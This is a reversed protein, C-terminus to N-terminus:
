VVSKRDQDLDLDAWPRTDFHAGLLLRAKGEVPGFRGIINRSPVLRGELKMNFPQTTITAGAEELKGKIYLICKAHAESGPPRPGLECQAMLDAWARESNFRDPSTLQALAWWGIALLMTLVVAGGALVLPRSNM